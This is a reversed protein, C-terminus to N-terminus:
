MRYVFSLNTRTYSLPYWGGFCVSSVVKRKMFCRIVCCQWIATVFIQILKVRTMNMWKFKLLMSSKVIHVHMCVYTYSVSTLKVEFTRAVIYGFLSFKMSYYGVKM